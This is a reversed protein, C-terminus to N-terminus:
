FQTTTANELRQRLKKVTEMSLRGTSAHLTLRSSGQRPDFKEVAYAECNSVHQLAHERFNQPHEACVPCKM